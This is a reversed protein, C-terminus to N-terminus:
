MLIYSMYVKKFCFNHNDEAHWKIYDEKWLLIMKITATYQCFLISDNVLGM